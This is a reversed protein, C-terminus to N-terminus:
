DVIRGEAYANAIAEAHSALFRQAKLNGNKADLRVELLESRSYTDVMEPQAPSSSELMADRLAAQDVQPVKPEPAAAKTTSDYYMGLIEEAADFDGSDADQAIRTRYPSEQIWTLFEPSQAKIKWEPFKNDLTALKREMKLNDIESRLTTLESSSEERAVRRIVEDPNEYIDDVSVPAATQVPAPSAASAQVQILQDVTKRMAGLDNAQRSNLKELEEYSAAIEAASKGAFREPVFQGTKADRAQQKTASDNIEDTLSESMYDAITAM